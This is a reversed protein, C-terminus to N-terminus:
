ENELKRGVLHMRRGAFSSLCSESLQQVRGFRLTESLNGSYIIPRVPQLFLSSLAKALDLDSTLPVDFIREFRETMPHFRFDNAEQM